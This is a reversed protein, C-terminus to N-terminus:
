IVPLFSTVEFDLGSLEVAGLAYDKDWGNEAVWMEAAFRMQQQKKPTVYELGSGQAGTKRYKVEIFHM